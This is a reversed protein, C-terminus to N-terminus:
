KAIKLHPARKSKAPTEGAKAAINFLECYYQGRKMLAEHTGSEVIRGDRLVLILDADQVTKLQHAIVLVTRGKEVTTLASRIEAESAPDLASTPEDMILIAPEKIVARALCIRQRQGGSLTSGREGLIEDYGNELTMIFDHIGALRAAAEIERQTAALKGYAINERISAGFLLSTQQVIGIHQRLAERKYRRVDIGDILVRGSEADYLRLVLNTITSKGAGSAGVLAIKRGANIKFSVGDLVANPGDDYRFTVNDFIINGKIRKPVIADPIDQIDPETDLIERIRETSASAKSMRASLRAMIRVPKFLAVIYTSFVLLDGPTMRGKIVETGGILIVVATGLARVIEVLRAAAAEMRATRISEEKTETSRSEFREAEYRERGFSQVLPLSTLVDTLRAILAGEQSRQKRASKRVKMLIVHLGYFLIPFTVLVMLGLKLNIALMIVYMGAVSLVHTVLALLYESYVDKLTNTDSVIKSLLEGTRARRHFSLSLRQLHQFLESRLKYVIEFGIRSTVILQYYSFGASLVALALAVLALWLLSTTSGAELAPMYAALGSQAPKGLIVNDFMLKLPWPAALTTLTAGAIAVFALVVSSGQARISGLVIARFRSAKATNTKRRMSLGM